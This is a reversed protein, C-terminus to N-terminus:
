AIGKRIAHACRSLQRQHLDVNSAARRYWFAHAAASLGRACRAGRRGRGSMEMMLFAPTTRICWSLLIECALMMLEIFCISSICASIDAAVAAIKHNKDARRGTQGRRHRRATAPRPGVAPCAVGKAPLQRTRFQCSVSRAGATASARAQRSCHVGPGECTTTRRSGERTPDIEIAPRLVKRASTGCTEVLSLTSIRACRTKRLKAIAIPQPM